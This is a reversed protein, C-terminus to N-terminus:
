FFMHCWSAEAVGYNRCSTDLRIGKRQLNARVALVKRYGRWGNGMWCFRGIWSFTSFVEVLRRWVAANRRWMVVPWCHSIVLGGKKM